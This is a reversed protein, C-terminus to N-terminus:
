DPRPSEPALPIDECRRPDSGAAVVVTATAVAPGTVVAVVASQM